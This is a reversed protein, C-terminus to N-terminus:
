GRGNDPLQFITVPVIAAPLDKGDKGTHQVAQPPKGYARDLIANAASVRASDSEGKSAIEALTELAAEAHVKAMDSIARKAESVKGKKRGAGPRKGGRQDM